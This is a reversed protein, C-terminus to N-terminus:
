CLVILPSELGRFELVIRIDKQSSDDSYKMLSIYTHLYAHISVALTENGIVLAFHRWERDQLDFVNVKDLRKDSLEEGKQRPHM